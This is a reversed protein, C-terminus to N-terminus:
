SYMLHPRNRSIREGFCNEFRQECMGLSMDSFQPNCSVVQNCGANVFVIAGAIEAIALLVLFLLLVFLLLM